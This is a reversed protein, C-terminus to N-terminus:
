VEPTLGSGASKGITKQLHLFGSPRPGVGSTRLGTRIRRVHRHCYRRALFRTRSHRPSQEAINSRTQEGSAPALLLGLGVGIGLGLLAATATGVVHSDEGRIVDSARSVRDAATEYTDQARSRLDEVTGGLRNRWSDLLYVGTGLLINMLVKDKRSRM